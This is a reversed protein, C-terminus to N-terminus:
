ERTRRRPLVPNTHTLERLAPTYLLRWALREHCETASAACRPHHLHHLFHRRQASPRHGPPPQPPDLKPPVASPLLLCSCRECRAPVVAAIAVSPPPPRHRHSCTQECASCRRPLTDDSHPTPHRAALPSAICLPSWRSTELMRRTQCVRSTVLSARGLIRNVVQRLM